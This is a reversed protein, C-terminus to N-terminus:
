HHNMAFYHLDHHTSCNANFMCVIFVMGRSQFLVRIPQGGKWAELLRNLRNQSLRWGTMTEGRSQWGLIPNKDMEESQKWKCGNQGM